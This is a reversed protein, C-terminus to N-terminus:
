VRPLGISLLIKEQKEFMVKEAEPDMHDYGLLHLMSHVTLFALERELSHGYEAAQQRAREYCIMMDGLLVEQTQPDINDVSRSADQIDQASGGYLRPQQAYSLMPFSLVDTVKDTDRFQRNTQRIQQETVITLSAECPTTVQEEALVAEAAKQFLSELKDRGAGTPGTQWSIWLNM